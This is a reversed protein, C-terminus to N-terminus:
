PSSALLAIAREAHRMTLGGCRMDTQVLYPLLHEMDADDDLIVFHEVEPHDDLWMQIELGRPPSSFGKMATKGIVEADVGHTWLMMTLEDLDFLWRWTSSFVVKAGTERVLHALAEMCPEWITISSQDREFSESCNLVGDVDLFIVRM